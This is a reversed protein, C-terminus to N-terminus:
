EYEMGGSEDFRIEIAGMACELVMEKDAGYDLEHMGICYMDGDEGLIISGAVCETTYNFDDKDGAIDMEISGMACAAEVDGLIRGQYRLGGVGTDIVLDTVEGDSIEMWGLGTELTVEEATLGNLSIEGMGTQMTLKETRVPGATLVGAGLQLDIERVQAGAPLYLTLSGDHNHESRNHNARVVLKGDQAYCQLVHINDASIGYSGQETTQLYLSCRGAEVVIETIESAAAVQQDEYHREKILPHGDDLMTRELERWMEDEDHYGSLNAEEWGELCAGRSGAEQRILTFAQAIGGFLGGVVLSTVGVGAVILLTLFIIKWVRKM